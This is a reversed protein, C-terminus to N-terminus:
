PMDGGNGGQRMLRHVSQHSLGVLLALDRVSGGSPLTLVRGTLRQARAQLRQAALRAARIQIVLRDLEADGTHFQYEISDAAGSGTVLGSGVVLDRALRVVTHLTRAQVVGLAAAEALWGRKDRRVVVTVVARVDDTV